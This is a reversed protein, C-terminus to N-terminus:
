ERAAASANAAVPPAATLLAFVGFGSLAVCVLVFWDGFRTYVSERDSWRLDHTVNVTRTGRFYVSGKEDTM